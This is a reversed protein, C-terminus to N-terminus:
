LHFDDILLLVNDSIDIVLSVSSFPITSSPLTQVLKQPLELMRCTRSSGRQFHSMLIPILISIYNLTAGPKFTSTLRDAVSDDTKCISEGRWQSKTLNPIQPSALTTATSTGIPERFLQDLNFIYAALRICHGLAMSWTHSLSVMMVIREVGQAIALRGVHEWYAAPASPEGLM